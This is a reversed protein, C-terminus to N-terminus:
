VLTRCEVASAKSIDNLFQFFNQSLETNVTEQEDTVKIVKFM